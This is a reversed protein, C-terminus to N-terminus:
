KLCVSPLFGIIFFLECAAVPYFQFYSTTKKHKTKNNKKYPPTLPGKLALTFDIKRPTQSFSGTTMESQWMFYAIGGSQLWSQIRQLNYM